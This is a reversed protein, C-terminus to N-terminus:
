LWPTGLRRGPSDIDFTAELDEMSVLCPADSKHLVLLM